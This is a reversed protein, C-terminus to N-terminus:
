NDDPANGNEKTEPVRPAYWAGTGQKLREKLLVIQADRMEIMDSAKELLKEYKIVTEAIGVAETALQVGAAKTAMLYDELAEKDKGLTINLQELTCVYEMLHRKDRFETM